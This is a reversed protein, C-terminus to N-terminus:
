GSTIAISSSFRKNSKFFLIESRLNSFGGIIKLPVFPIFETAPQSLASVTTVPITPHAPKIGVIVAILHRM